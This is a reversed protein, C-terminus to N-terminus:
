GAEGPAPIAGVQPMLGMQDWDAGHEILKGNALRELHTETVTVKKGTAPIGMFDGTHVATWTLRYAVLDGVAIMDRTSMQFDSLAARFAPLVAVLGDRNPPM